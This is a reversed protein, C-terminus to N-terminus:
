EAKALLSQPEEQETNPALLSSPMELEEIDEIIEKPLVGAPVKSMDKDKALNAINKAKEELIDNEDEPSLDDEDDGDIRYEIGAKECLAMLLYMTPEILMMLLDPNWKGEQFGAQLIQLTVDTIPVGQGIGTILGVYIDPELLEEALYNFAERFDTFEPPQEFSRPEDPSSALSQGPIPRGATAIANVGEQNYEEIM